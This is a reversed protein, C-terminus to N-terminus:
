KQAACWNDIYNDQFYSELGTAMLKQGAPTWHTDYHFYLLEEGDYARFIPVMSAFAISNEVAFGNIIDLSKDSLKANEPVFQYRGPIGERDNVQHSHPYTTLLFEIDREDAISKIKMISEFLDSWQDDRNITDNALTHALVEYNAQAVISRVDHNYNFLENVYIFILRTFYMNRESWSRFREMLTGDKPPLVGIIEGDTGFKAEKRYVAEGVLDNMDLNLVIMDPSLHLLERKLYIYSLIPAYGDVGANLLEVSKENCGTLKRNLSEELLVTFTENDEVGKGMTFSDGLMLIRTKDAPKELEVERGRLGFKNVRQVYTFDRQELRSYSDPVLKHHRYGDQILPPSLSEILFLGALLDLIIYSVVVSISTLLIRNLTERYRTGYLFIAAVLFLSVGLGLSIALIATPGFNKDVFVKEYLLALTACVTLILFVYLIKKM